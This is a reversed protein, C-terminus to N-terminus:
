SCTNQSTSVSAAVRAGAATRHLTPLDSDHSERDKRHIKDLFWIKDIENVSGEFNEDKEDVWM